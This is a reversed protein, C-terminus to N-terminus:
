RRFTLHHCFPCVTELGLDPDREVHPSELISYEHHCCCCTIPDDGCLHDFGRYATPLYPDLAMAYVYPYAALLLQSWAKFCTVANPDSRWFPGSCVACIRSILCKEKVLGFYTRVEDPTAVRCSVWHDELRQYEEELENWRSALAPPVNLEYFSSVHATEFEQLTKILQDLSLDSM